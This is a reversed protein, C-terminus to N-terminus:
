PLMQAIRSNKDDDVRNEYGHDDEEDGGDGDGDEAAGDPKDGGSIRDADAVDNHDSIVASRRLLSLTSLGYGLRSPGNEVALDRSLLGSAKRQILLFTDHDKYDKKCEKV